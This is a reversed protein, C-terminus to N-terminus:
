DTQNIEEWWDFEDMNGVDYISEYVRDPQEYTSESGLESDTVIINRKATPEIYAIKGDATDVKVWAHGNSGEFHDSVCISANFGYKELYWEM